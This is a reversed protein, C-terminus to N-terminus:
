RASGTTLFGAALPRACGADFHDFPSLPDAALCDMRDRRAPRRHHRGECGRDAAGPTDWCADLGGTVILCQVEVDGYIAETRLDGGFTQESYFQFIPMYYGDRYKVLIPRDNALLEAFLSLAFCACFVILSVYARRNRRFNQWRRRNMSTGTCSMRREFDIRPDIWVYMLDSVLRHVARDPQLHLLEFVVPYDRAVAAEFGMRGLGDLSFITEIILSSGFFVSVFVAPFGAIVILMANRFVHGYLVRKESLGKAKATLVYQKRIEDLFSNEDAPDPHRLGLNDLRPGSARYALFLGAGAAM